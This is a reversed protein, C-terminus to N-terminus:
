TCYLPRRPRPCRHGRVDQRRDAVRLVLNDCPRPANTSRYHCRCCAVTGSYLTTLVWSETPHFDIAKVRDSRAFLQRQQPNAGAATLRLGLPVGARRLAHQCRLPSPLCLLPSRFAHPAAAPLLLLLFCVNSSQPSAGASEALVALAQPAPPRFTVPFRTVHCASYGARVVAATDCDIPQRFGSTQRTGLRRSFRSPM